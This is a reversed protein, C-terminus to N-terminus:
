HYYQDLGLDQLIHLGFRVSTGPGEAFDHMDGGPPPVVKGICQKPLWKGDRWEVALAFIRLDEQGDHFKAFQKGSITGSFPSVLSDTKRVDVEVAVYRYGAPAKDLRAAVAKLDAVPDFVAVPKEARNCGAVLMAVACLVPMLKM